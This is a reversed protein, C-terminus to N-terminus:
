RDIGKSLGELLTKATTIDDELDEESDWGLLNENECLRDLLADVAKSLPKPGGLDVRGGWQYYLVRKNKARLGVESIKIYPIATM